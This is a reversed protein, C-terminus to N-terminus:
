VFLFDYRYRQNYAKYQKAIDIFGLIIFIEACLEVIIRIITLIQSFATTSTTSLGNNKSTTIATIYPIAYIIFYVIILIIAFIFKKSASQIRILGIISIVCRITLMILSLLLFFGAVILLNEYKSQLSNMMSIITESKAYIREVYSSLALVVINYICFLVASSIAFGASVILLKSGKYPNITTSKLKSRVGKFFSFNPSYERKQQTNGNNIASPRGCNPCYQYNEKAPSGCYPCFM